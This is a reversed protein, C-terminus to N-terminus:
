LATKAENLRRGMAPRSEKDLDRLGDMLKSLDASRGLYKVRWAQLAEEDQVAELDVKAQTEIQDVQELM